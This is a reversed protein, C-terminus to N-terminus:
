TEWTKVQFMTQFCPCYRRGVFYLVFDSNIQASLFFRFYAHSICTDCRNVRDQLLVFVILGCQRM